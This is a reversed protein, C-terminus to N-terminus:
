KILRDFVQNFVLFPYSIAGLRNIPNHFQFCFMPQEMRKEDAARYDYNLQSLFNLLMLFILRSEQHVQM